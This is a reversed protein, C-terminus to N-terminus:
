IFFVSGYKRLFFIPNLILFVSRDFRDNSLILDFRVKTNPAGINTCFLQWALSKGYPPFNCAIQYIEIRNDKGLVCDM